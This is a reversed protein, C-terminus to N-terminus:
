LSLSVAQYFLLCTPMCPLCTLLCVLGNKGDDECELLSHKMCRAFRPDIWHTTGTNHSSPCHFRNCTHTVLTYPMFGPSPRFAIAQRYM